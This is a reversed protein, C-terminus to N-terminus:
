SFFYVIISIYYAVLIKPAKQMVVNQLVRHLYTCKYTPFHKRLLMSVMLWKSKESTFMMLRNPIEVYNVDDTQKRYEYYLMFMLVLMVNSHIHTSILTYDSMKGKYYM